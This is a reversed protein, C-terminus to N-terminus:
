PNLVDVPVSSNTTSNNGLQGSSNDGWCKAGGSTTVACTHAWGGAISAVGSTLGSVDVPVWSDDTSNNGLQGSYNRGWCKAGGSTTVACTHEYGGAISAVGSTLGSVDVPVWSDTTSSNGLRGYSNLGWCKAGGSTTVACTHGWGSAISAVGSTLGSVDVPGWSDDTSNNGLRGYRNSGWCKAGGSTTVACTHDSGSVISAVGSTLGSVDVPVSSNTTSNNGLQGDGNLGWCKAGGSTTVACTYGYGSDISAVGSTLGSVDVPVWSNTTSNNGLQGYDNLGWCKAGGSTTVACTLSLGSDISAVGSTLGSVDVPVRSSTTSNNGLQGHGNSGWCKAGGSTTVACTHYRGVSISVVELEIGQVVIKYVQQGTADKYTAKVTYDLTGKATPTGSLVGTVPDLTLGAPLTGEASWVVESMLPAADQSDSFLAKFDYNVFQGVKWQPLAAIALNVDGSTVVPGGADVPVPIVANEEVALAGEGALALNDNWATVAATLVAEDGSQNVVM